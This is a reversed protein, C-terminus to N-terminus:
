VTFWNDELGMQLIPNVKNVKKSLIVGVFAKCATHTWLHKSHTRHYVIIFLMQQFLLYAIFIEMLLAPSTKTKYSKTIRSM